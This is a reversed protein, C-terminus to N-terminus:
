RSGGQRARNVRKRKTAAHAQRKRGKNGAKRKKRKHRAKKRQPATSGPGAFGASAPTVGPPSAPQGQCADGQCEAPAIANQSPIGGEIRADYLDAQVDTDVRVLREYTTFFVNRGDPSASMFRSKCNCQGSSVLRVEEKESDYVYVDYQGNSDRPVLADPSSFFVYRGDDSLPRTLNTDPSGRLGQDGYGFSTMGGTFFAEGTPVHGFNCSACTLEGSDFSYLYVQPCSPNAYECAAGVPDYGVLNRRSVFAINRGDPTVRFASYGTGDALPNLQVSASDINAVVLSVEDGHVVFLAKESRAYAIEGSRSMGLVGLVLEGGPLNLLTLREEPPRNFDYRYLSNQGDTDADVLMEKSTFYVIDGDASAAGFGSGGSGSPDPTSRESADIQVTTQGDIRAYIGGGASFFVKSGDDSVVNDTDTLTSELFTFDHLAGGGGVSSPAVCPPSGCASDPLIGALRVTGDEWEYLKLETGTAQATLNDLTEFAVKSFDASADDYAIYPTLEEFPGLPTESDSVLEFSPQGSRLGRAVYINAREAVNPSTAGPIPSYARFIGMELDPSFLGTYGPGVFALAPVNFPAEQYPSIAHTSWGDADRVSVYEVGTFPFGTAGAFAGTSKFTVANGDAAVRTKAPQTSVSSGHKDIPSVMEYARCDPLTAAAGVRQEANPCGSPPTETSFSSSAGITEGVANKAILRYSYSSGPSLGTIQASVWVFGNGSGADGDKSAPVSTCPNAACDASGWEFYYTTQSNNPDIRGNLQASGTLVQTANTAEVLPAVADTTFTPNPLASTAEGGENEALLRVQYTTNPLLGAIEASVAQPGEGEIPGQDGASIWEVGDSSYEFRYATEQLPGSGKPDVTGSLHASESDFDSVPDISVEPVVAPPKAATEFSTTARFEAAKVSRSITTNRAILTVEYKTGPQLEVAEDSVAHDAGDGPVTREGQLGPCEPTCEFRYATEQLPGSGGPNVTGSFHATDFDFSTVPDISATPPQVAEGDGYISVKRDFKPFNSNSETFAYFRGSTADVDVGRPNPGGGVFIVTFSILNGADDYQDLGKESIFKGGDAYGREVASYFDGSSFDTGLARGSVAVGSGEPSILTSGGGGPFALPYRRSVEGGGCQIETGGTHHEFIRAHSVYLATSSLAADCAVGELTVESDFDSSKPPNASPVYKDIHTFPYEWSLPMYGVYLNGLADVMVLNPLSNPNANGSDDITGLHAGEPSYVEVEGSVIVYINGATGGPSGPPAVAVLGPVETARGAPPLLLPESFPITHTGAGPGATFPHPAGASTFRYLRTARPNTGPKTDDLVYVDHSGHDVAVALPKGFKPTTGVGQPGFSEIFPHHYLTIAAAQTAFLGLIAAMSLLAIALQTQPSAKVYRRVRM